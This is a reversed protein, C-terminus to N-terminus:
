SVQESLGTGAMCGVNIVDAYIIADKIVTALINDPVNTSDFDGRVSM